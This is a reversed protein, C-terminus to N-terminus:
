KELKGGVLTAYGHAADQKKKKKHVNKALIVDQLKKDMIILIQIIKNRLKMWTELGLSCFELRRYYM